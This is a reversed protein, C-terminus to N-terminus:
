GTITAGAGIRQGETWTVTYSYSGVSYYGKALGGHQLEWLEHQSVSLILKLDNGHDWDYVDYVYFTMTASYETGNKEVVCKANASTTGVALYWDIDYTPFFGPNERLDSSFTVTEGDRVLFEAADMAQNFLSNRMNRASAAENVFRYVNISKSTGTNNLFHALYGLSVDLGWDKGKALDDEAMKYIDNLARTRDLRSKLYYNSKPSAPWVNYEDRIIELADTVNSPIEPEKLLTTFIGSVRPAETVIRLRYNSASTGHYSYVYVYYKGPKLGTSILESGSGSGNSVSIQKLTSDYLRLDYDCGLPINMLSIEVNVNETVNFYYYDVDNANHINAFYDTSSNVGTATATSNNPEYDDQIETDRCSVALKYKVSSAGSYSYVKVYYTGAAVTFAINENRNGGHSSSAVEGGASNYVKIDYDCMTPINYLSINVKSESSVAFKFYDIDNTTHLNAGTITASSAIATAAAFSNNIEYADAVSSIPYNKARLRYYKGTHYSGQYGVVKMYYVANASVPYNYIQEQSSTGNSVRLQTGQSDYLYLDYDQGVPIDGLWFNAYGAKSFAVKFWDADNSSSVRGYMTDDDIMLNAKNRPANSEMEYRVGAIEASSVLAMAFAHLQEDEENTTTRALEDAPNLIEAAFELNAVAANTIEPTKYNLQEIDYTVGLTCDKETICFYGHYATVVSDKTARMDVRYETGLVLNAIEITEACVSIYDSVIPEKSESAFVNVELHVNEVLFANDVSVALVM